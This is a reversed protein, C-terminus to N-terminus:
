LICGDPMCRKQAPVPFACKGILGHAATHYNQRAHQSIFVLIDPFVQLVTKFPQDPVPSIKGKNDRLILHHEKLYSVSTALDEYSRVEILVSPNQGSPCSAFLQAYLDWPLSGSGVPRHTDQTKDNDNIHLHRVFPLLAQNWETLPTQSLYAHAMDYCVGFRPGDSLDDALRRLLEPEEDFMNELYVTLAPYEALLRRWYAGSKKLWGERYSELRFNAIHNTHFIVARVSLRMAIDMSQRVRVDSAHFILPDQSDICIDM